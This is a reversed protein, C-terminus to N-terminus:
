APTFRCWWCTRSGALKSRGCGCVDRPQNQRQRRMTEQLVRGPPDYIDRKATSLSVGLRDAIEQCTLGCARLRGAERVRRMRAQQDDRM